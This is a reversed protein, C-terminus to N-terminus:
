PPEASAAKDLDDDTLSLAAQNRFSISRTASEGLEWLIPMKHLVHDNLTINNYVQFYKELLLTAVLRNDLNPRIPLNDDVLVDFIFGVELYASSLEIQTSLYKIFFKQNDGLLYPNNFAPVIVSEELVLM